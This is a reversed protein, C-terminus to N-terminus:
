PTESNTVTSTSKNGAATDQTTTFEVTTGDPQYGTVTGSKFGTVKGFFLSDLRRLLGRVTRGTRFAYNLLADRTVGGIDVVTEQWSHPLYGNTTVLELVIGGTTGTEGATLQLAYRGRGKEVINAVTANALAGGALAVMVEGTVWVHATIAAGTNADFLNIPLEADKGSAGLLIM